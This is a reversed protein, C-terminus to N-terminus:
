KPLVCTKPIVYCSSQVLSKKTKLIGRSGFAIWQLTRSSAAASGLRVCYLLQTQNERIPEIPEFISSVCLQCLEIWLNLEISNSKSQNNTGNDRDTGNM